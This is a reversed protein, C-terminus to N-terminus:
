GGPVHACKRVTGEAVEVLWAVATPNLLGKFVQVVIVVLLDAEFFNGSQHVHGFYGKASEDFFSRSAGIDVCQVLNSQPM